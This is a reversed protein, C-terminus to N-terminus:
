QQVMQSFSTGFVRSGWVTGGQCQERLDSYKLRASCLAMLCVIGYPVLREVIFSFGADRGAGFRLVNRLVNYLVCRLVCRVVNYLVCYLVCSLVYRLM